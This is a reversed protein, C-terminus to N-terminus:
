PRVVIKGFVRGGELLRHGESVADLPLVRDVVPALTGSFVLRMVERFESPSGASTGLVSLQKWFIHRLDLETEAGATAGYVVLRGSPRLAKVLDPWASGGVSDFVLDVRRGRTADKILDGLSGTLRDLVVHAGLAKVREVKEPGSTVAFVEAGSHVAIQIAATSVGGSAGTVLVREGPRLRGRSVLGRWATVFVLAAAAATEFPVAQPLEVLNAAPVTVLEALGGNTHEGIIGFRPSPLDSPPQAGQTWEWGLAPYLDLHNLASARVRIRVEGPGPQPAPVEAVHVVEPDGYETFLAARM